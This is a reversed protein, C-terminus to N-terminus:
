VALAVMQYAGAMTRHVANGSLNKFPRGGMRQLLQFKCPVFLRAINRYLCGVITSKKLNSVFILFYSLKPLIAMAEKNIQVSVPTNKIM